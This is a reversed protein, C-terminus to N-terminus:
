RLADMHQAALTHHEVLVEGRQGPDRGLTQVFCNSPVPPPEGIVEHEPERFAYSARSLAETVRGSLIM